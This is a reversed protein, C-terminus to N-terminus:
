KLLANQQRKQHMRFRIKQMRENLGDFPSNGTRGDRDGASKIEADPVMALAPFTSAVGAKQIGASV